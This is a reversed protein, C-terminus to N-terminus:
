WVDRASVVLVQESTEVGKFGGRAALVLRLFIQRSTSPGVVVVEFGFPFNTGGTAFLPVRHPHGVPVVGNPSLSYTFGGSMQGSLIDMMDRSSDRKIANKSDDNPMNSGSFTHFASSPPESPDWAMTINLATLEALATARTDTSLVRLQSYDAYPVSHWEWLTALPKGDLSKNSNKKVVTYYHFRYTDVQVGSKPLNRVEGAGAFFLRNGVSASIFTTAGPTLGGLTEVKPLENDAFEGSPPSDLKALYNNGAVTDDLIRKCESLRRLISNLAKQNATNLSTKVEIESFGRMSTQFFSVVSVVMITMVAMTVVVEVLTLGRNKRSFM